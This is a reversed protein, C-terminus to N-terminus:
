KEEKYHLSVTSNFSVLIMLSLYGMMVNDYNFPTNEWSVETYNNM